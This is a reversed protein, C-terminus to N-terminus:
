RLQDFLAGKKGINEETRYEVTALLTKSAAFSFLM